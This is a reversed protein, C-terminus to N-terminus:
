IIDVTLKVGIAHVFKSSNQLAFQIPVLSEVKIKKSSHIANWKINFLDKLVRLYRLLRYQTKGDKTDSLIVVIEISISESTAPGVGESVITDVYYFVCPSYSVVKDDLTQFIYATDAVTLLSFDGKEANIATIQANLNAKLMTEIDRVFSELDYKAV